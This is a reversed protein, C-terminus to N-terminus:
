HHSSCPPASTSVTRLRRSSLMFRRNWFLLLRNLGSRTLTISTSQTQDCSIVYLHKLVLKTPHALGREKGGELENTEMGTDQGMLMVGKEAGM